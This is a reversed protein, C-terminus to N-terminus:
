KSAAKEERACRLLRETAWASVSIGVQKAAEKIEKDHAESLRVRLFIEKREAAPKRRKVKEKSVLGL